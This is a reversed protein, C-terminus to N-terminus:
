EKVPLFYLFYFIFGFWLLDLWEQTKFYQLGMLSMFGLFGPTWNNRKKM